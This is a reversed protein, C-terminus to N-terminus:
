LEGWRKKISFNVNEIRDLLKNYLEDIKCLFINKQINAKINWFQM